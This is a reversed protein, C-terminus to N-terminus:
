VFLPTYFEACQQRQLTSYLIQMTMSILNRLSHCSYCQMDHNKLRSRTLPTGRHWHNMALSATQYIFSFQSVPLRVVIQVLRDTHVNTWFM